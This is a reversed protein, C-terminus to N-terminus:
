VLFMRRMLARGDARSVPIVERKEIMTANPPIAASVSM